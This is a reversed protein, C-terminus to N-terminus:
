SRQERMTEVASEWAAESLDRLTEVYAIRSDTDTPDTETLECWQEYVQEATGGIDNAAVYALRCRQRHVAAQLIFKAAEIKRTLEQDTTEM